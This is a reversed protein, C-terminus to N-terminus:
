SIKMKIARTDVSCLMAESLQTDSEEKISNQWDMLVKSSTESRVFATIVFRPEKPKVILFYSCMNKDSGIRNSIHKGSKLLSVGCETNSGHMPTVAQEHNLKLNISTKSQYFVPTELINYHIIIILILNLYRKFYCLKQFTNTCGWLIGKRIYKTAALIQKTILLNEIILRYMRNRTKGAWGTSATRKKM